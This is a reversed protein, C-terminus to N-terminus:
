MGAFRNGSWDGRTSLGVRSMLGGAFCEPQVGYVMGRHGREGAWGVVGGGEGHEGNGEVRAALVSEVRAWSM